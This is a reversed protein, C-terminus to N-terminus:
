KERVQQVMEQIAKIVADPDIAHGSNEVVVQRGRTKWM